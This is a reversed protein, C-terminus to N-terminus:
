AIEKNQPTLSDWWEIGKETLFRVAGSESTGKRRAVERIRDMQDDTFHANVRNPTRGPAAAAVLARSV